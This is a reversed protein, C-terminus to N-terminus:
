ILVLMYDHSILGYALDVGFHFNECFRRSFAEARDMM